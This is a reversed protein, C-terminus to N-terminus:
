TLMLIHWYWSWIDSTLDSINEFNECHIWQLYGSQQGPANSMVPHGLQSNTTWFSRCNRSKVVSSLLSGLHSALEKHNPHPLSVFRPKASLLSMFHMAEQTQFAGFPTRAGSDLAYVSLLALVTWAPDLQIIYFSHSDQYRVCIRWITCHKEILSGSISARIWRSESGQPLCLLPVNRCPLCQQM